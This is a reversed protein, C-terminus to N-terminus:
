DIPPHPGQERTAIADERLLEFDINGHPLCHGLVANPGGNGWHGVARENVVNNIEAHLVSIGRTNSVRATNAVLRLSLTATLELLTPPATRRLVAGSLTLTHVPLLM